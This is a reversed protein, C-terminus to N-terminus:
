GSRRRHKNTATGVVSVLGSQVFYINAIPENPAEVVQRVTLEIEELVPALLTQNALSLTALLRNRSGNNLSNLSKEAGFPKLPLAPV